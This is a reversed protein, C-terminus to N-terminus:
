DGFLNPLNPKGIFMHTLLLFARTHEFSMLTKLEAEDGSNFWALIHELEFGNCFM